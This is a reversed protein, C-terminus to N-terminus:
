VVRKREEALQALDLEWYITVGVILALIEKNEFGITAFVGGLTVYLMKKIWKIDTEMIMLRDSIKM